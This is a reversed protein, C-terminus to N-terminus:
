SLVLTTFNTTTAANLRYFNDFMISSSWNGHVVIDEVRAGNKIAETPGIARAKPIRTNEPLSLMRSITSIHKSIRESSVAIRLDRVDRILPRYRITNDKDHKVMIESDRIRHLYETIAQIPCLLPDDHSKITVCKCIRRGQRTEKPLLVPLICVVTDLHFKKDSLDICRIDNPRMFGCTGLLWCLKQTLVTNTLGNNPGMDRFHTIVPQLDINLEKLHKVDRQRLVRFFRHFDNDEFPTKDDYMHMIAAKYNEVTAATWNHTSVGM